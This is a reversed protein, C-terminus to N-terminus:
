SIVALFALIAIAAVASGAATWAGARRGFGVPVAAQGALPGLAAPVIALLVALLGAPLNVAPTALTLRSGALITTADAALLFAAAAGFLADSRTAAMAVPYACTLVALALVPPALLLSGTPGGPLAYDGGGAFDTRWRPVGGGRGAGMIAAEISRRLWAALRVDFM